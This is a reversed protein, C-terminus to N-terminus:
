LLSLSSTGLMIFMLSGFLSKYKEYLKSKQHIKEGPEVVLKKKIPTVVPNCQVVGVRETAQKILSQQNM